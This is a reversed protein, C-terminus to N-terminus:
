VVSFYGGPALKARWDIFTVSCHGSRFSSLRAGLQAPKIAVIPWIDADEICCPVSVLSLISRNKATSGRVEGAGHQDEANRKAIRRPQRKQREQVPAPQRSKKFQDNRTRAQNLTQLETYVKACNAFSPFLLVAMTMIPAQQCHCAFV